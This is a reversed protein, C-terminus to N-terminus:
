RPLLAAGGRGVQLFPESSCRRQRSNLLRVKAQGQAGRGWEGGGGWLAAGAGDTLLVSQLRAGASTLVAFVLRLKAM